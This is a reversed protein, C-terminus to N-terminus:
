LFNLFRNMNEELVDALAVELLQGALTQKSTKTGDGVKATWVEDLEKVDELLLISKKGLNADERTSWRSHGIAHLSCTGGGVTILTWGEKMM